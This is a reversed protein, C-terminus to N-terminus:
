GGKDPSHLGNAFLQIDRGGNKDLLVKPYVIIAQEARAM